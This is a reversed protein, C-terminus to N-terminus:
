QKVIRLRVTPIDGLIKDDQEKATFLVVIDAYEDEKEVKDLVKSSLFKKKEAEGKGVDIRSMGQLVGQPYLGYKDKLQAYVEGFTANEPCTIEWRDWLTVTLGEVITKKQM